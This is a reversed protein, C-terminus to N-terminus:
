RKKAIRQRLNRLTFPISYRLSPQDAELMQETGHLIPNTGGSTPRAGKARQAKANFM